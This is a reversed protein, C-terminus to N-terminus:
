RLRERVPKLYTRGVRIEAGSRLHVRIEGYGRDRVSLIRDLRVIASRRVRLYRDEGLRDHLASLTTRLLFARECNHLHVYDREAEAWEIDGVQLPVFDSGRLAWIQAADRGDQRSEARVQVALRGHERACVQILTRKREVLTKVRIIAQELRSRAAPKLIYDIAHAEFAHVAHHEGATVFIVFPGAEGSCALQKALELGSVGRMEIDLLVLDPRHHEVLSLANQPNSCAATLHVGPMDQLMSKLRGLAAADDDIAIIKIRAAPEISASGMLPSQPALAEHFMSYRGCRSQSTSPLHSLRVLVM